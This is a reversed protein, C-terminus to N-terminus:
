WCDACQYLEKLMSKLSDRWDPIPAPLLAQIKDTALVSRAPRTAATPYAATAIPEVRETKVAFGTRVAEILIAEAFGHWSTQGANVYHFLGGAERNILVAIAGAFDSAWTPSGLQDDVVRLPKGQMAVRLVTKVFNRGHVGYLWATRLVTAGPLAGQVAEEGELKSRGYVSLPNPADEERYPRSLRGDFVFDTSVHLLRGGEEAVAAALRGASDRNITFAQEPESEAKDVGTYAACNIVWDARADRVAAAMGEPELFDLEKETPTLVAHGAQSFLRVVEHGLQGGAGTVLVRM